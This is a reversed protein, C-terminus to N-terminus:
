FPIDEDLDTEPAEEKTVKEGGIAPSVGEPMEEPVVAGGRGGVRGLFQVNEAVVEVTSRKQGDQTEWSRSQLRGEVAVPAGKGIYENCLEALRGWVVVNFYDVSDAREGQRNTRRRNIAIGFNAVSTGSPTFRLEPDRTLNGILVVRNLSAM